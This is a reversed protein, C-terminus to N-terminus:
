SGYAKRAVEGHKNKDPPVAGVQRLCFVAPAFAKMM